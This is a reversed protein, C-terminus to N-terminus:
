FYQTACEQVTGSCIEHDAPPNKKCNLKQFQTSIVFTGSCFGSVIWVLAWKFASQSIAIEAIKAQQKTECELAIATNVYASVFGDKSPFAGLKLVAAGFSSHTFVGM